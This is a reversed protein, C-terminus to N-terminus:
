LTRFEDLTKKCTRVVLAKAHSPMKSGGSDCGSSQGLTNRGLM